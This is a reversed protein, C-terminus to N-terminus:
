LGKELRRVSFMSEDLDQNYRINEFRLDTKHLTQKGKKTTMTMRTITWIGDILELGPVDLYKLRNGEVSWHVARVVVFNDQRVFLVSKKYGTEEQEQRTKPVREILWVRVGRVVDEKLHKFSYADLNRRTMDSYNFDSGMFSGSKDSSAIRKSRRLAPLYLWQDDDKDYADYDYNLFATDEVDAPSLFFMIRRRDEGKDKEFTRIERVRQNGHKDILTMSMDSIRNDGDDRDDVREAIERASLEAADLPMVFSVLLLTSLLLHRTQM